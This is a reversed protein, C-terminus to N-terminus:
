ETAKIGLVTGVFQIGNNRAANTAMAWQVVLLGIYIWATLPPHILFAAAPSLVLLILLSMFAYDRAFLFQRHAQLVKPLNEVSCLMRFWLANQDGPDTPLPGFKAELAAMGARGVRDDGPGHRTFAECGPLPHRWRWFVLRAKMNPTVQADLIGIIVLGAGAPLASILGSVLKGWEGLTIAQAQQLLYFGALNIALMTLLKSANAEKLTKATEDM